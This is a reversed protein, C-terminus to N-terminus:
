RKIYNGKYGELTFSFFGFPRSEKKDITEGKLKIQLENFKKQKTKLQRIMIM